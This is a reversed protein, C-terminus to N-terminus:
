GSNGVECESKDKLDSARQTQRLSTDGMGRHQSQPKSPMSYVFENNYHGSAGRRRREASM